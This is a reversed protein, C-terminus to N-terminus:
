NNSAVFEAVDKRMGLRDMLEIANHPAYGHYDNDFYVHVDRDESTWRRVREAWSDLEEAEYNSAYTYPRGHLRVYVMDTTVADWFPWKGADSQCVALDYSSMLAAVEPNFWSTHRLEISHRVSTWEQSLTRAFLELREFNFAFQAPLQWVVAKLKPELARMNDRSRIVTQEPDGLKKNHTAFKHGKAAFVFEDPTRELWKLFTSETQLRYFSANIEVASFQAACFELWRKRPVGAYFDDKWRDYM